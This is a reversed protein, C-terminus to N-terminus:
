EPIEYYICKEIEVVMHPFDSYFDFWVQASKLSSSVFLIKDKGIFERSIVAYVEKRYARKRKM